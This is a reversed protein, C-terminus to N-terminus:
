YDWYEHNLFDLLLQIIINRKHKRKKSQPALKGFVELEEISAEKLWYYFSDMEMSCIDNFSPDGTKQPRISGAYHSNSGYIGFVSIEQVLEVKVKEKGRKHTSIKTGQYM